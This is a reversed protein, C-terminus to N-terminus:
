WKGNLRAFFDDVDNSSGIDCHGGQLGMEKAFDQWETETFAKAESSNQEQTEGALQAVYKDVEQELRKLMADFAQNNTNMM